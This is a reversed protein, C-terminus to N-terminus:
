LFWLPLQVHCWFMRVFEEKQLNCRVGKIPDPLPYSMNRMFRMKPKSAESTFEGWWATSELVCCECVWQHWGGEQRQGPCKKSYWIQLNVTDQFTRQLLSVPLQKWQRCAHACICVFIIYMLFFFFWSRILTETWSADTHCSVCLTRVVPLIIEM